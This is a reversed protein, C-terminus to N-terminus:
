ILYKKKVIKTYYDITEKEGDKYSTWIQPFEEICKKIREKKTGETFLEYYLWSAWYHIDNDQYVILAIQWKFFIFSLVPSWEFRIDKDDWKTKWGLGCSSFGITLPVAKSYNRYHKYWADFSKTILKPNSMSEYASKVADGHTYKVWKRPFFYPIGIAIKGIYIKLKFPKFPSNLIKLWDWKNYKKM